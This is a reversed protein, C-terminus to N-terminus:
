YIRRLYAAVAIVLLGSIAASATRRQREAETRAAVALAASVFVHVALLLKIVLWIWYYRSHGHDALLNYLGSVVLGVITSWLWPRLRNRPAQLSDEAVFRAYFFGGVLLAACAVHVWRVLIRLLEGAGHDM